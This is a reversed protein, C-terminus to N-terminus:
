LKLIIDSLNDFSYENLLTDINNKTNNKENIIMFLEKALYEESIFKPVIHCYKELTSDLFEASTIVKKNLSLLENITASSEGHPYNRLQVAIDIQNMVSYFHKDSLESFGLLYKKHKNPVNDHVYQESNYGALIVQSKIGYKKNLLVVANVIINTSKYTDDCIGFFGIKIIDDDMLIQEFNEEQYFIYIPFFLRRISLTHELISGKIDGFLLREANENNVLINSIGTLLILARIGFRVIEKINDFSMDDKQSFKDSYEPYAASLLKRYLPLGMYLYLLNNINIEHLYLFSNEKDQEKIAADFYPVNHYSNGLVFIKKRYSFISCATSYHDLSFFNDKYENGVIGKAIEIDSHNNFFSFVHFEENLGFTKANYNAIGTKEPPLVGFVACGCEPKHNLIKKTNRIKLFYNLKLISLGVISEKERSENLVTDKSEEDQLINVIIDRTEKRNLTKLVARNFYPFFLKIFLRKLFKKIM